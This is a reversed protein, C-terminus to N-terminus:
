RLCPMMARLDIVEINAAATFESVTMTETLGPADRIRLPGKSLTKVANRKSTTLFAVPLAGVVFVQRRRDTEDLSLGVVDAFLARQRAGDQGKWSSLKFEAVRHTTELDFVRGPDNGAGLSPRKTVVEDDELVMPLVQTIVGAHILTDLMGVRERVVLAADVLDEDFGTTQGLDAAAAKSIGNLKAELAALTPTLVNSALFLDLRRFAELADEDTHPTTPSPVVPKASQPIEGPISSTAFGLRQFVRLAFHSIFPEDILGTAIRFAQKPPWRRGDIEVWHTRISDPLSPLVRARVTAADLEVIRGNLIFNM